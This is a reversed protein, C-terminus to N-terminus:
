KHYDKVMICSVALALALSTAGSLWHPWHYYSSYWWDPLIDWIAAMGNTLFLIVAIVYSYKHKFLM